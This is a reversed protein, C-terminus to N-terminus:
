SEFQFIFHGIIRNTDELIPRFDLTYWFRERGYHDMDSRATVIPEWALYDYYVGLQRKGLLRMQGEKVHIPHLFTIFREVVSQNKTGAAVDKFVITDTLTLAPLEDKNWYFSREVLDLQENEYAEHLHITLQDYENNTVAEQITARFQRGSRQHQGGIIPVSHGHSGNCWLTYRDPGFYQATYMGSGLDALYAEGDAHVVFQGADNHNHPEDNHGGKAAFSYSGGTNTVHRSLLWQTSPLYHSEAPWITRNKGENLAHEKKTWLLNRIAPAWRGCHDAAYPARLSMDPIVVDEYEDYLCWSLGMFIGCKSICDSFNVVTNGGTFCKQQFRAMEKVKKSAFLNVRGATAAKLLQAFYVYYGFGYQWYNYGEPCAGDDGFGTLYSELAELVRELVQALRETSEILHISAAGISGACVAAWNHDAKEWGYPGEELFPQLLRREIEERIRKRLLDPMEDETLLLVESLAFGTEAAFLDIETRESAKNYHAPLCWTYENCISWVINHFAEKYAENDPELMSMITFANLRKRREFYVREYSLREGTEVFKQFLSYTLEADSELIMRKAEARIEAILPQNWESLMRQKLQSITSGAALLSLGQKRSQDLMDKMQEKRM